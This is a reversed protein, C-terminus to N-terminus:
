RIQKQYQFRAPLRNAVHWPVIRTESLISHNPADLDILGEEVERFIEIATFVKALSWLKFVSEPRAAIDNELDISGKAQQYIITQDDVVSIALAPLHYRRMLGKSEKEILSITNPYEQVTTDTACSGYAIITLLLLICTIFHIPNNRM